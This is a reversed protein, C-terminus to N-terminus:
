ATRLGAMLGYPSVWRLSRARMKRWFEGIVATPRRELTVNKTLREPIKDGSFLNRTRAAFTASGPNVFFDRAAITQRKSYGRKKTRICRLRPSSSVPRPIFTITAYFSTARVGTERIALLEDVSV